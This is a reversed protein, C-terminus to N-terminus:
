FKIKKSRTKIEKKKYAPPPRKIRWFFNLSIGFTKVVTNLVSMITGWKMTESDKKFILHYFSAWVIAADDFGPKKRPGILSLCKSSPIIIKALDDNVALCASIFLRKGKLYPRMIEDFELFPIDDLTTSILTENGHCSIHLYRYDSKEFIKLVEKLEKKTRIYYYKSEKGGLNLILSLFKGEFRNNEEDDFTLSEIIFVNPETMKKVCRLATTSENVGILKKYM